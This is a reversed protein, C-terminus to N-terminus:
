KLFKENLPFGAVEVGRVKDTQESFGARQYQTSRRESSSPATNRPPLLFIGQQVKGVSAQRGGV